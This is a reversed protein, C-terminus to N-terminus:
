AERGDQKSWDNHAANIVPALKQESMQAIFLQTSVPLQSLDARPEMTLMATLAADADLWERVATALRYAARSKNEAVHVAVLQEFDADRDVDILDALSVKLVDAAAKLEDIVIPRKAGELRTVTLPRIERGLRESLGHALEAQTMGLAARAAAVRAGVQKSFVSDTNEM